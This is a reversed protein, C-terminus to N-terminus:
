AEVLYLDEAQKFFLLRHVLGNFGLYLGKSVGGPDGFLPLKSENKKFMKVKVDFNHTTSM